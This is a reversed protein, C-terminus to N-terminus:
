GVVLATAMRLRLEILEADSCSSFLPLPTSLYERLDSTDTEHFLGNGAPPSIQRHLEIAGALNGAQLIRKIESAQAESLKQMAGLM